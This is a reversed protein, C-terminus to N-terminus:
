YKVLRFTLNIRPGHPKASKPVQHEWQHQTAGAMLLFSGHHLPINVKPLEKRFKHRLQFMRSDGFSVSAIVPNEGFEKENDRHWGVGDRGDRYLNVLVSNFAQGAEAEVKEKVHLLGPTWHYPRHRIGSFVYETGADGFWATLRPTLYTKNYVSIEEQKWPTDALLAEFLRDAAPKDFLQERLRVVADPLDFVTTKDQGTNFLHHQDFLQM